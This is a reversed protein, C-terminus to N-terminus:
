RSTVRWGRRRWRWGQVCKGNRISAHARAREGEGEGGREGGGESESKGM